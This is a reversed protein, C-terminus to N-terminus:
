VAVTVALSSAVPLIEDVAVIPIVTVTGVKASEFLAAMLRSAPMLELLVEVMVTVGDFPKVPATVKLQATVALGDPAALRGVQLMGEGTVMEPVVACVAVSVTSETKAVM